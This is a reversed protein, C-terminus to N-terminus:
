NVISLGVTVYLELTQSKLILQDGYQGCIISFKHNLYFQKKTNNYILILYKGTLVWLKGDRAKIQIAGPQQTVFEVQQLPTIKFIKDHSLFLLNQGDFSLSKIDTYAGLPIQSQIKSNLFNIEYLQRSFEDYVAFSSASVLKLSQPSYIGHANLDVTYLQQLYKDFILVENNATLVLNVLGAYSDLGMIPVLLNQNFATDQTLLFIKTDNAFFIANQSCSCLQAKIGLSKVRITDCVGPSINQFSHSLDRATNCNPSNNNIKITSKQLFVPWTWHYPYILPLLYLVLRIFSIKLM